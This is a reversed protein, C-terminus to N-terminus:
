FCKSHSLGYEHGKGVNIIFDKAVIAITVFLEMESTPQPESNPM